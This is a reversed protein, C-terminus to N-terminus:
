REAVSVPTVSSVDVWQGGRAAEGAAEAILAARAGDAFTAAFPAVPGDNAVADLFHALMNIHGHEWGLLHASPWWPAALAHDPETVIVEAFGQMRGGSRRYVRLM